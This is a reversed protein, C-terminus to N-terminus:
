WACLVKSLKKYTALSVWAYVTEMLAKINKFEYEDQELVKEKKIKLCEDTGTFVIKKRNTNYIEFKGTNYIKLRYM